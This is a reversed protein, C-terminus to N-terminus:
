VNRCLLLYTYRNFVYSFLKKTIKVKAALRSYINNLQFHLAIRCIVITSIYLSTVYSQTLQTFYLLYISAFTLLSLLSVM